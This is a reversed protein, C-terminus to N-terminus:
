VFLAFYRIFAETGILALILWYLLMFRERSMPERPPREYHFEGGGPLRLDIRMHEEKRPRLLYPISKRRVQNPEEILNRRGPSHYSVRRPMKKVKDCHYRRGSRYGM